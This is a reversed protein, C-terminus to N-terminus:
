EVKPEGPIPTTEGTTASGDTVKKDKWKERGERISRVISTPLKFQQRFAMEVLDNLNAESLEGISRLSFAGIIVLITEIGALAVIPQWWGTSRRM